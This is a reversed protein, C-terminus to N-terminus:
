IYGELGCSLGRPTPPEQTVIIKGEQRNGAKRWGALTHAARVFGPEQGLSSDWWSPRGTCGSECIESPSRTQREAARNLGTM